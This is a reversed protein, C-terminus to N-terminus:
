TIIRAGIGKKLVVEISPYLTINSAGTNGNKDFRVLTEMDVQSKNTCVCSTDCGFPSSAITSRNPFDGSDCCTWYVFVSGTNGTTHLSQAKKEQTHPVPPPNITTADFLFDHTVKGIWRSFLSDSKLIHLM